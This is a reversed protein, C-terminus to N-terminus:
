DNTETKELVFEVRRNKNRNEDTTNPALPMIDGYGTATLRQPSIGKSILYKLVTTARIASLEWNSPFAPTSIPINDTHGKINITYEPYEDFIQIMKDFSPLAGSNFSASGSSFLAEGSIIIMIKGHRSLTTIKKRQDSKKAMKNIKKFLATERSRLGTFDELSIKPDLNGSLNFLEMNGKPEQDQELQRMMVEIRSEYKEKEFFALTYLLVFFVLLITMLDAYTILWTADDDYTIFSSNYSTDKM